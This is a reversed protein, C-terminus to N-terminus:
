PSYIGPQAHMPQTQSDADRSRSGARTEAAISRGGHCGGSCNQVPIGQVMGVLLSGMVWYGGRRLRRSGLRL